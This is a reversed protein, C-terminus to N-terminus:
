LKEARTRDYTVILSFRNEGRIGEMFLPRSCRTLGWINVPLGQKRLEPLKSGESVAKVLAEM